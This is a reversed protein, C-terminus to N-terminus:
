TTAKEGTVRRWFSSSFKPDIFASFEKWRPYYEQFSRPPMCADKAPYLAGGAGRVLEDLRRMLGLTSEGRFPFDLCLTVGPRPFSLMGPSGVDGFEKLVALFSGRGSDIVLKLIARLPAHEKSKPIVCQFQLLGRAGYIRNWAGVADLPYFFPEYAVTQVVTKARQRYYYFHNFARVSYYNLAFGPLDFPVFLKPRRPRCASLPERGSRAHNGRMFIGRGFTAGSHVCDLWAVTHEFRRDSDLSIEFFEDLSAFRISEMEIQASAIPKLQIEAWGILGTLGLGAITAAYLESDKERSCLVREGDSRLLEFSQVHCGFTGARHHNKGHVDNAIAGGVSVHKTGPSVPIFWGRKVSFALIEGLTMGAECRLLGNTPDFSIFRNLRETTLLANGGNLCCDGYSRGQGYPLVSSSADGWAGPAACESLWTPTYISRPPLAPYRGWSEYRKM